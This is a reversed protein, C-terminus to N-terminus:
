LEGDVHNTIEKTLIDILEDEITSKVNVSKLDQFSEITWNTKLKRNKVQITTSSISLGELDLVPRCIMM